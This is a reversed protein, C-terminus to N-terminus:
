LPRQGNASSPDVSMWGLSQRCGNPCRDGIPENMTMWDDGGRLCTRNACRERKKACDFRKEDAGGSLTEVKEMRRIVWCGLDAQWCILDIQFDKRRQEHDPVCCSFRSPYLDPARSTSM